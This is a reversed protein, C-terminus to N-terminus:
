HGFAPLLPMMSLGAVWLRSLARKREKSALAEQRAADYPHARYGIAGVAELIHSLKVQRNDWRVRARHTSYNIDVSLVGPLRQLHRENLWVCAACTIGELMLAAERVDNEDVHVFSKQLEDSDFLRIQELLEDPLLEVKQSGVTRHTYYDTLGADVITQAVAQCGACCAAEIKAKYRIPFDSGTPVPLGCHFCNESM